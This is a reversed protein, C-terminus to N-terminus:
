GELYKKLDSLNGYVYTFCKHGKPIYMYGGNLQAVVYGSLKGDVYVAIGKITDKYTIM